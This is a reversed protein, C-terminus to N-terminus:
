LPHVLLRPGTVGKTGGVSCGVDPPLLTAEYPTVASSRAPYEALIALHGGYLWAWDDLETLNV